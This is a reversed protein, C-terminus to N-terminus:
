AATILVGMDPEIPFSNNEQLLGSTLPHVLTPQHSQKAPDGLSRPKRWRAATRDGHHDRGRPQLQSGSDVNCGRPVPARSSAAGDRRSM